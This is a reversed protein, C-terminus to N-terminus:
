GKLRELWADNVANALSTIAEKHKKWEALNLVCFWQKDVQKTIPANPPPEYQFPTAEKAKNFQELCLHVATPYFTIRIRESGGVLRVSHTGHAEKAQVLEEPLKLPSMYFTVGAPQSTPNQHSGPTALAQLADRWLEGTGREEALKALDLLREGTSRQPSPPRPGNPDLRDRREVQRALFTTGEHEYGHFTLLTIDVGKEHLYSVMRVAPDDAGLGVLAMRVPTLTDLPKGSTREGYWGEFDEIKDVGGKGSNATIVKELTDVDLSELYSCYDIVQAVADRTLTGRKLEFVVLRGDEDVGLLDLEGGGAPTQRGVLSLGPMLMDPNKVLTDELWKETVTQSKSEVPKAGSTGDIAWIKIEDAM